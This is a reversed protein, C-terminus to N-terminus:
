SRMTSGPESPMSSRSPSRGACPSCSKMPSTRREDQARQKAEREVRFLTGIWDLMENANADSGTEGEFYRRVHAWCGIRTIEGPDLGSYCDHGDCQLRGRRNGIVAKPGDRNRTDTAEYFVGAYPRALGLCPCRSM